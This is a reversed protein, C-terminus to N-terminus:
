ISASLLSPLCIVYSFESRSMIFVDATVYEKWTDKLSTDTRIEYGKKRFENLDEFSKASTFIIVRAGPKMYKDILTQYHLNPLYSNFGKTKEKCPSTNGRLMHVVITFGHHLKPPYTILSRLYDVYDPTWTNHVDSSIDSSLLLCSLKLFDLIYKVCSKKLIMCIFKCHGRPIVSRRTHKDSNKFDRPCKFRLIDKLGLANILQEHDKIKLTQSGCCGGYTANQHYIYAHAMIMEKKTLLSTRETENLFYAVIHIRFWDLYNM